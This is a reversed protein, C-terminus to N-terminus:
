VEGHSVTSTFHAYSSRSGIGTPYSRCAPLEPSCLAGHIPRLRRMRNTLKARPTPHAISLRPWESSRMNM